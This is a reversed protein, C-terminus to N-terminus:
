RQKNYSKGVAYLLVSSLLAIVNENLEPFKVLASSAYYVLHSNLDMLLLDLKLNM